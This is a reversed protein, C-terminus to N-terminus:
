LNLNVPSKKHRMQPLKFPIDGNYFREEINTPLGVFDKFGMRLVKQRRAKLPLDEVWVQENWIKSLRPFAPALLTTWGKLVFKYNMTIDCHDKTTEKVTITTCAPIGFLGVNFCKITNADHQVMVNLSNSRLFSFVPLKYTLLFLVTKTDEYLVRAETYNNHVVCLHEHDWYNWFVVSASCDVQRTFESEVIKM